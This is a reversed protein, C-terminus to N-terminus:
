KKGKKSVYILGVALMSILIVNKSQNFYTDLQNLKIIELKQNEKQIKANELGNLIELKQNNQAMQANKDNSLIALRQTEQAMQANKNNSKALINGLTETDIKNTINTTPRVTINNTGKSIATSNGGGGGLLGGVVHGAGKFIHGISSFLGM